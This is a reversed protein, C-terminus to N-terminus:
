FRRTHDLIAAIAGPDRPDVDYARTYAIAQPLAACTLVMASGFAHAEVTVGAARAREVMLPGCRLEARSPDDMADVGILSLSMNNPFRPRHNPYAGQCRWGMLATRVAAMRGADSKAAAAEM